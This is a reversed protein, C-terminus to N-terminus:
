FKNEGTVPDRYKPDNFDSLFVKATENFYPEGTMSYLMELQDVHLHHYFHSKATPHRLCYHSADGPKRFRHVNHEITLIAAQLMKLALEDKTLRYYDYFGYISFIKGNLTYAPPNRPYEEFWLYGNHDVCTVWPRSDPDDPNLHALGFSSFVQHAVQLYKENQTIEYLRCYLSLVQGQAMGSYWPAQQLEGEFGHLKFDFKYPFFLSGMSTHAEQLLIDACLVAENLHKAESTLRYDNLHSLGYSALAVPHYYAKGKYLHMPYGEADRGMPDNDVVESKGSFYPLEAQSLMRIDYTGTNYTESNTVEPYEILAYEQERENYIAPSDFRYYVLVTVILIVFLIVSTKNLMSLIQLNTSSRQHTFNLGTTKM